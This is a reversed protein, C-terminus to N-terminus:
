EGTTLTATCVKPGWKNGASIIPQFGGTGECRLGFNSGRVQNGTLTVDIFPQPSASLRVGAFLAGIIRNHSIMVGDIPRSIARLMVGMTNATPTPFQISNQAITVDQPSEMYIGVGDTENTISNGTIMLASPMGGSHATVRIGTGAEGRRYIVNNAIVTRDSVNGVEIVGASTTKFTADFVNGTVVSDTSRYLSLGRGNFINGSIVAYKYSTLAVAYDGQTTDPSDFTNGIIEIRKDGEGGSAEGDIHQDVRPSAFHNGIIALSNVNRQVGVDSRACDTFTNGIIKTRLVETAATNGFLRICDGKRVGALGPHVFRIREVSVDVVPMSCTGNASTCVGTGIAIAHTQEDTNTMGSTDIVFDRLRIDSAGPDLSIAFTSAGGQDGSMRLVTSPGEGSIEVHQGHTSLAAFRNYSGVPARTLTWVGAGFCVRGGTAGADDLAQQAPVRDSVHDNPIAGYDAPDYCGKPGPMAATAQHDDPTLALLLILLLCACVNKM